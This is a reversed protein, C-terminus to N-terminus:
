RKIPMGHSFVAIASGRPDALLAALRDLVTRRFIAPDEGVFRVTSALFEAWRHPEECRITEPSRYRTTNLDCQALGAIIEVEIGLLHALPAATAALSAFPL